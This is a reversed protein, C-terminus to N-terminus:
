DLVGLCALVDPVRNDAIRYRVHVGDRRGSVVRCARLVALQRSVTAQEQGTAEQLETVTLEQESVLRSLLRLRVPHGISKLLTAAEEATRLSVTTAPM